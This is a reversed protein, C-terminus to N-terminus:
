LNKVADLHRNSVHVNEITIHQSCRYLEIEKANMIKNQKRRENENKNKNM